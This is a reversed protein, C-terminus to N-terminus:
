AFTIIQNDVIAATGDVTVAPISRPAVLTKQTNFFDIIKGICLKSGAYSPHTWGATENYYAQAAAFSAPTWDPFNWPSNGSRVDIFYDANVSALNNKMLADAALMNVNFLDNDAQTHTGDYRPITSVIAIIWPHAARRASLFNNADNVAVQPSTTSNGGIASQQISNTTEQIVLINIKGAIWANDYISSDQPLQAWSRGDIAAGFVTAGSGSMPPSGALMNAWNCGMARTGLGAPISNGGIVINYNSNLRLSSKGLSLPNM